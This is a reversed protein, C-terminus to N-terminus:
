IIASFYLDAERKRRATLGKAEIKKGNVTIKNWMMFCDRIYPDCPSKKIVKLLTSSAFGGVGVNYAFSVLADYQNQNLAVSKLYGNLAATKNKVEWKLLNDAQLQTITEDKGVRKGSEYMTSGWGITWIGASDQYSNLRCAEEKKIFNIGKLSIEMIM